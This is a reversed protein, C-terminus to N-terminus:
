STAPRRGGGEVVPRRGRPRYWEERCWLWAKPNIPEDVTGLLRLSSLDREAPLEAGWKIVSRIATPALLLDHRRPRQRSGAATRPRTTRPGEFIVQTLGNLLPGYVIYSSGPIWGVDAACWYVDARPSSTSSTSRRGPSAPSTAAPRTCSTRRSTRRAPRTAPHFLPHEADLPEAACEPSAAGDGRAVLRRRGEQMECDTGTSQGVFIKEISAIDSIVDDVDPKIPATKGKRPRRRRHRAGQRGVSWARAHGVRALVRRLGRQATRRHPRVRADRRRGRPDDAHLDRRRRGVRRRQGEPRQRVAPGPRAAVRLHSTSRARRAAGTSRSATAWGTRSTATSATTPRTSRGATSGRTSRRTPTTSCRTGSRSGTSTRRRSRGGPSRDEAAEKWLADDTDMAEAVFVEPPDFHDTEQLEELRKALDDHTTETSAMYRGKLSRARAPAARGPPDQRDTDQAPRRRVRGRAPVRLRLAPERM